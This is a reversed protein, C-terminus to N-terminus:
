KTEQWGGALSQEAADSTENAEALRVKILARVFELVNGARGLAMELAALRWGQARRGGSAREEALRLSPDGPRGRAWRFRAPRLRM